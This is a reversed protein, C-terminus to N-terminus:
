KGAHMSRDANLLLDVASHMHQIEKDTMQEDEPPEDQAEPLKSFVSQDLPPDGVSSTYFHGPVMPAVYDQHVILLHGPRLHKLLMAFGRGYVRTQLECMWTLASPTVSNFSLTYAIFNHDEHQEDGMTCLFMQTIKGSLGAFHKLVFPVKTTVQVDSGVRLHEESHYPNAAIEQVNKAIMRSFENHSPM